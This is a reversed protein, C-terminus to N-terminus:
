TEGKYQKPATVNQYEVSNLILRSCATAVLKVVEPQPYDEM